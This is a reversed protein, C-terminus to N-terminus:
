GEAVPEANHFTEMDARPSDAELATESPDLPKPEVQKETPPQQEPHIPEAMKRPQVEM